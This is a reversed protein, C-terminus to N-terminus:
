GLDRLARLAPLARVRRDRAPGGGRHHGRRLEAAGARPPDGAASGLFTWALGDPGYEAIMGTGDQEPRVRWWRMAVPDYPVGDSAREDNAFLVLEDGSLNIALHLQSADEPFAHMVLYSSDAVLSGTVELLQGEPGLPFVGTGTCGGFTTEPVLPRPSILLRGSDVRVDAQDQRISGWPGCPPQSGDFADDIGVACVRPAPEDLGDLGFVLQCGSCCTLLLAARVGRRTYGPRAPARGRM